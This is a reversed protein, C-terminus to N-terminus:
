TICRLVSSADSGILPAGRHTEAGQLAEGSKAPVLFLVVPLIEPNVPLENPEFLTDNWIWHHALTPSAKEIAQCTALEEGTKFRQGYIAVADIEELLKPSKRRGIARESSWIPM